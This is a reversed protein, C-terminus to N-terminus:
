ISKIFGLQNIDALVIVAVIFLAFLAALYKM